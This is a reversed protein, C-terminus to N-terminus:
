QEIIELVTNFAEIINKVFKSEFLESCEEKQDEDTPDNQQSASGNTKKKFFNKLKKNPNTNGM